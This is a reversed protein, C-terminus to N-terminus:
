EPRAQWHESLSRSKTGYGILREEHEQALWDEMAVVLGVIEQRDVKMGHGLPRPGIYGHAIAGQVLEEKGCLFGTSQPM